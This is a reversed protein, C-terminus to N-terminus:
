GYRKKRKKNNKFREDNIGLAVFYIGYSDLSKKM